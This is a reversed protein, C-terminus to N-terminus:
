AVMRFERLVDVTDRKTLEETWFFYPKIRLPWKKYKLTQLLKMNKGIHQVLLLALSLYSGV